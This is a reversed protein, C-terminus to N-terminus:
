NKIRKLWNWNISLDLLGCEKCIVYESDLDYYWFKHFHSVDYDIYKRRLRPYKQLLDLKFNILPIDLFKEKLHGFFRRLKSKIM